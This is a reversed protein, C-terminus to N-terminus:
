LKRSITPNFHLVVTAQGIEVSCQSMLQLLLRVRRKLLVITLLQNEETSVVQQMEDDERNTHEQLQQEVPKM